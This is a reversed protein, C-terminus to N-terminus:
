EGDQRTTRARRLRNEVNVQEATDMAHALDAGDSTRVMRKVEAVLEAPHGALEAVRRVVEPAADVGPPLVVLGPIRAEAATFIRGNVLLDFAVLPGARRVVGPVVLAPVVAHRMEPFGLRAGATCVVVDCALALAFGAGLAFGHVEAIVPKDIGGPMELLRRMRRAHAAAEAADTIRATEKLDAGASFGGGTGALVVVRVAPDAGAAKIAESLAAVLAGDLANRAQPRDLVLRRIGDADEIRLRDDGSM